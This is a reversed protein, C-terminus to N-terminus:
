VIAGHTTMVSWALRTTLQDDFLAATSLFFFGQGTKGFKGALGLTIFHAIAAFMFAVSFYDM